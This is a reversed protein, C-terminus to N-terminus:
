IKVDVLALSGPNIARCDLGVSVSAVSPLGRKAGSTVKQNSFSSEM